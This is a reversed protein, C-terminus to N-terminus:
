GLLHIAWAGGWRVMPVPVLPGPARAGSFPVGRADGYREGGERRLIEPGVTALLLGAEVCGQLRSWHDRPAHALSRLARQMAPASGVKM